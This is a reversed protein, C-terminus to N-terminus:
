RRPIPVAPEQTRIFLFADVNSGWRSRDTSHNIPRAFFPQALWTREAVATRLDVLGSRHGTAAMLEEFEAERRQDPVITYTSQRASPWHSSGEYSVLAIAYSETGFEAWAGDGMTYTARNNFETVSRNRMVHGNHAWVVIKRGPYLQNALWSLNQAM